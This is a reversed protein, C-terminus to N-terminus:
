GNLKFLNQYRLHYLAIATAITVNFSKKVSLMPIDLHHDAKDLLISSIGNVESGVVLYFGSKEIAYSVLSQSKDTKELCLLPLSKKHKLFSNASQFYQGEIMLESGLATKHIQKAQRNIQHPLRHDNKIEPYPTTGLFVFQLCNFGNATRILSGVNHCSRLNDLVLIIQASMM